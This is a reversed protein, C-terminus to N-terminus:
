LLSIAWISELCGCTIRFSPSGCVIAVNKELKFCAPPRMGMMTVAYAVSVFQCCATAEAIPLSVMAFYMSIGCGYVGAVPAPHTVYWFANTAWFPLPVCGELKLWSM